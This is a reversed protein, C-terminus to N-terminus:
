FVCEARVGAKLVIDLSHKLFEKVRKILQGKETILAESNHMLIPRMMSLLSQPWQQIKKRVGFIM